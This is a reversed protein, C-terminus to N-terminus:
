TKVEIYCYAVIWIKNFYFHLIFVPRMILVNYMKTMFLIKLISILLPLLGYNKKKKRGMAPSKINKDM